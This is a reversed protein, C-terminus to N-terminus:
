KRKRWWEKFNIHRNKQTSQFDIDKTKLREIEMFCLRFLMKYNVTSKFEYFEIIDQHFFDRRDLEIGAVCLLEFEEKTIFAFLCGQKNQGELHVSYTIEGNPRSKKLVRGGQELGFVIDSFNRKADNM